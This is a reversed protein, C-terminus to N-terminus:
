NRVGFDGQAIKRASQSLQRVPVLISRIFYVGSLSLLLLILLGVAVLITILFSIQQDAREM